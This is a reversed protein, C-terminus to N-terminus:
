RACASRRTRHPSATSDRGRFGPSLREGASPRSIWWDASSGWGSGSGRFTSRAISPVPRASGGSRGQAVRGPSRWARLMRHPGRGRPGARGPVRRREDLRPFTENMADIDIEEPLYTGFQIRELVVGAEALWSHEPRLGPDLALEDLASELSLPNGDIELSPPSPGMGWRGSPVIRVMSSRSALARCGRASRFRITRLEPRGRPHHQDYASGRIVRATSPWPM